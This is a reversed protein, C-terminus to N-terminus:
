PFSHSLVKLAATILIGLLLFFTGGTLWQLFTFKAEFVDMKALIRDLKSDLRQELNELKLDVETKSYSPPM